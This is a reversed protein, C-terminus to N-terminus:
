NAFHNLYASTKTFEKLPWNKISIRRSLPNFRCIKWTLKDGRLFTGSHTGHGVATKTSFGDNFVM